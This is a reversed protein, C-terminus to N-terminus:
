PRVIKVKFIMGKSDYCAEVNKKQSMSREMRRVFEPYIPPKIDCGACLKTGAISVEDPREFNLLQVSYSVYDVQGSICGSIPPSTPAELPRAKVSNSAVSEATVPFASILSLIVTLCILNRQYPMDDEM